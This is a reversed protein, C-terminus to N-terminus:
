QKYVSGSYSFGGVSARFPDPIGVATASFLSKTRRPPARGRAKSSAEYVGSSPHSAVPSILVDVLIFCAGAVEPSGRRAASILSFLSPRPHSDSLWPTPVLIQVFPAEMGLAMHMDSLRLAVHLGASPAAPDESPLGM